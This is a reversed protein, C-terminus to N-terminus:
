PVVLGPVLAEVALSPDNVKQNLDSPVVFPRPQAAVTVHVSAINHGAGTEAAAVEIAAVVACALQSKVVPLKMM